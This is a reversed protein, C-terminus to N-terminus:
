ANRKERLRRLFRTGRLRCGAVEVLSFPVGRMGSLALGVCKNSLIQVMMTLM